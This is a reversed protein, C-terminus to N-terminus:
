WWLEPSRKKKKNDLFFGVNKDLNARVEKQPHQQSSIISAMVDKDLPTRMDDKDNVQFSKSGKKHLKNLQSIAHQFRKPAENQLQDLHSIANKKAQVCNESSSPCCSEEVKKLIERVRGSYFLAENKCKKDSSKRFMESYDEKNKNILERGEACQPNEHGLQPTEKHLLALIAKNYDKIHQRCINTDM